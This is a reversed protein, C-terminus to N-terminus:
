SPRALIYLLILIAAGILTIWIFNFNRSSPPSIPSDKSRPLYPVIEKLRLIIDEEIMGLVKAYSRIAGLLYVSAPFVDWRGEELAELHYLSLKSVKAIEELTISRLLRQQRLYNGFTREPTDEGRHSDM